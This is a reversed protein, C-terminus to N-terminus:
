DSLLGLSPYNGERIYAFDKPNQFQGAFFLAIGETLWCPFDLTLESIQATACHAFEHVAITSISKRNHVPGPNNLSVIHIENNGWAKGAVWDPVEKMPIISHFSKLSPYVFVTIPSINIKLGTSIRPYATELAEAMESVAQSDQQLYIFTFHRSAKQASEAFITDRITKIDNEIAKFDNAAFAANRGISSFLIVFFLLLRM